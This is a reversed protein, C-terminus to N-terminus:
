QRSQAIGDDLGVPEHEGVQRGHDDDEEVFAVDTGAETVMMGASGLRAEGTAETGVHGSYNAFDVEGILGNAVPTRMGKRREGGGAVGFPEIAEVKTGREEGNEKVLEFMEGM